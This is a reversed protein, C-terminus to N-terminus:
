QKFNRYGKLTLKLIKGESESQNMLLFGKDELKLLDIEQVKYETLLNTPVWKDMEKAKVLIHIFSDNM